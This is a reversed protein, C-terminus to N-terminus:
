VLGALGGMMHEELHCHFLFDGKVPVRCASEPPECQLEELDCPLRVPDPVATDAVFSEAPSLAHVDAAGGPPDPLQWRSAHPHFNHWMSGLDLNFLYWRLRQGPEAEITPTNGVYSRGNLCFTAAGGGPAFVIHPFTGQHRWTVVSSPRVTIN